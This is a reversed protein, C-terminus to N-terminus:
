KDFETYDVGSVTCLVCSGSYDALLESDVPPKSDYRIKTRATMM